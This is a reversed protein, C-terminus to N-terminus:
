LTTGESGSRFPIHLWSVGHWLERNAGGEGVPLSPEFFFVFCNVDASGLRPMFIYRASMFKLKANKSEKKKKELSSLKRRRQTHTHTGPSCGRRQDANAEEVDTARSVRDGQDLDAFRKQKPKLNPKPPKKRKGTKTEVPENTAAITKREPFESERARAGARLQWRFLM